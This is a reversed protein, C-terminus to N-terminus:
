LRTLRTLGTLCAEEPLELHAALWGFCLGLFKRTTEPISNRSCQRMPRGGFNRFNGYGTNHRSYHSGFLPRIRLSLFADSKCSLSSLRETLGDHGRTELRRSRRQMQSLQRISPSLSWLM